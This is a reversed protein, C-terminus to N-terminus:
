FLNLMNGITRRDRTGMKGFPQHIITVCGVHLM